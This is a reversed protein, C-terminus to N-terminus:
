APREDDRAPQRAAKHSPRLVARALAEPTTAIRLDADKKPTPTPKAKEGKPM